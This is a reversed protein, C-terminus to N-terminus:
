LYHCQRPSCLQCLSFSWRSHSSLGRSLGLSYTQNGGSVPPNDGTPDKIIGINGGFPLVYDSSINPNLIDNYNSAAIFGYELDNTIAISKANNVDFYDRFSGLTLGVTNKEEFGNEGLTFVQFGHVESNLNTVAVQSKPLAKVGYAGTITEGNGTETQAVVGHWTAGSDFDALDVNIAYLRSADEM